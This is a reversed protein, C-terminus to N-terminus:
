ECRGSCCFVFISFADEQHHYSTKEPAFDYYFFDCLLFLMCTYLRYHTHTGKLTQIHARHIRYPFVFFLIFIFFFMNKHHIFLIFIRRTPNLLSVDNLVPVLCSSIRVVYTHSYTRTDTHMSFVLPLPDVFVLVCM